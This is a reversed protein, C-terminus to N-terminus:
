GYFYLCLGIFIWARGVQFDTLVSYAALTFGVGDSFYSITQAVPGFTFIYIGLTSLLLMKKSIYIKPKNPEPIFQLVIHGILISFLFYTGIEALPILVSM